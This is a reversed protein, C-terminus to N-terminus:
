VFGDENREYVYPNSIQLNFFTRQDSSDGKSNNADGLRWFSRIYVIFESEIIYVLFESEITNLTLYIVFLLLSNLLCLQYFSVIINEFYICFLWSIYWGVSKLCWTYITKDM